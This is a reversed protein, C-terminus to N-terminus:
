LGEEIVSYTSFSQFPVGCAECHWGKWWRRENAMGCTRCVWGRWFDRGAQDQNGEEEGAPEQPRLSLGLSVPSIRDVPQIKNPTYTLPGIYVILVILFLWTILTGVMSLHDPGSSFTLALSM